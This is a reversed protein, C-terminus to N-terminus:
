TEPEVWTMIILNVAERLWPLLNRWVLSCTCYWLVISHVSNMQIKAVTQHPTVAQSFISILSPVKVLTGSSIHYLMDARWYHPAPFSIHLKQLSTFSTISLFKHISKEREREGGGRERERMLLLVHLVHKGTSHTCLYTYIDVPCVQLHTHTHTTLPLLCDHAVVQLCEKTCVFGIM